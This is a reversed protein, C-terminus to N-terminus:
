CLESGSRRPCQALTTRPGLHPLGGVIGRGAPSRFRVRDRGGVREGAHIMEIPEHWSSRWRRGSWRRCRGAQRPRMLGSRHSSRCRCSSPSCRRLLRCRCMGPGPPASCTAIRRGPRAASGALWSGRPMQPRCTQTWSTRQRTSGSPSCMLVPGVAVQCTVLTSSLMDCRMTSVTRDSVVGISWRCRLASTAWQTPPTLAGSQPAAGGPVRCCRSQARRRPRAHRVHRLEIQQDDIVALLTRRPGFPIRGRTPRSLARRVNIGTGASASFPM